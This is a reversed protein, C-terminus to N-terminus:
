INKFIYHPVNESKNFITTEVVLHTKPDVGLIIRKVISARNKPTLEVLNLTKNQMMAEHGHALPFSRVFFEKKIDGLGEMFALAEKALLRSIKQYVEVQTDGPVYVWLTKGDSIYQRGRENKYEIRLKGPKKIIIKGQKDINKGLLEVFTSQIFEAEWSAANHYTKQLNSIIQELEAPYVRLPIFLFVSFLLLGIRTM